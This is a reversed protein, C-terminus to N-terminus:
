KRWGIERATLDGIGLQELKTPIEEKTDSVPRNRSMVEALPQPYLPQRNPEVFGDPFKSRGLDDYKDTAGLTHMLEHTVVILTLDAMSADLEVSVNGIHGGEESQGEVFQQKKSAPKRAAVYIRTDWQDGDIGARPDVDHLWSKMAAAQKVLDVASDTQPSPAAEAVEVPGKLTIRFPKGLGPHHREGEIRLRDELASIRDELAALADPDIASQGQVHVVVLAVDLTRKWDNREKRRRFDAIAYLVVVFLIFLLISVRILFFRRKRKAKQEDDDM